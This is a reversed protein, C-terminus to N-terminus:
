FIVPAWPSFFSDESLFFDWRREPPSLTAAYLKGQAPPHLRALHCLSQGKNPTPLTALDRRYLVPCRLVREEPREWVHKISLARVGGRSTCSNLRTKGVGGPRLRRLLYFDGPKRADIESGEVEVEMSGHNIPTERGRAGSITVERAYLRSGKLSRSFHDTPPHCLVEVEPKRAHESGCTWCLRSCIGGM